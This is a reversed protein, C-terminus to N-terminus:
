FIDKGPNLAQFSTGPQPDKLNPQNESVGGGGGNSTDKKGLTVM